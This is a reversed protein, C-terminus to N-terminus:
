SARWSSPRSSVRSAGELQADYVDHLIRKFVPGPQFGVATLDDGTLLAELANAETQLTAFEAELAAIRDSEIGVSALAGMLLRSSQSSATALFRKKTALTPPNKELQPGISQLIESAEDSESNSLRLSQRMARIALSVEERTLLSQVPKGPDTQIRVCLTAAAIALSFSTGEAPAVRLFISRDLDMRAPLGPLFRFLIEGLELQWLLPWALGRTAPSFMLRLEDGVREPSIGKLQPAADRIADATKPEIQLSFRAAFRVARLLRLHDESFRKAPDGIARLVRNKLDAQGGVYDIVKNELPDFFLGNITFDRRQADEEATAFRVSSPRRGDEYPGDTRFTAVEVVSKGHRVLIVGFAAGVAQTDSFLGRVRPPPADTAIDYDKPELGLLADRVSGGAFYAEHGSDRLRKLVALADAQRCPPKPRPDAPTTM